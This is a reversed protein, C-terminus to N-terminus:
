CVLVSGAVKLLVKPEDKFFCFVDSKLLSFQRGLTILPHPRESLPLLQM